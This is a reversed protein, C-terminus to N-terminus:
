RGLLKLTKELKEEMSMAGDLWHIVVGEREMKRYWTRQRKAFQHIATNLQKVMTAYDIRGTLYWTIYRYELGYYELSEPAIGSALLQQVESVMGQKLRSELRETIRARETTRDYQIGMFLPNVAPLGSNLEPNDRYFSEIEIARTARDITDIDSRNHLTKMGALIEELEQLSRSELSRRLPENRPVEVLRYARTAAEIYMGSGGCLIPMKDRSGIEGFAKFFDRQFEFVSYMNGPDTIDILHFPVQRGNVQYDGYDKGTGLNMERYVQRSDASIVEGDIEYALRVAFATKGSATPGTVVILNFTAPM